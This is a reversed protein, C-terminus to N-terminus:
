PGKPEPGSTSTAAKYEAEDTNTNADVKFKWLGQDLVLVTSLKGYSKIESSDAATYTLEYFGNDLITDGLNQRDMIKFVLRTTQGNKEVQKFFKSFYNQITTNGQISNPNSDDYLNLLVADEVYLKELITVDGEAYAKSFDEYISDPTNAIQQGHAALALLLAFVLLFLPQPVKKM